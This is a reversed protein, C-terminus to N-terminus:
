LDCIGFFGDRGFNWENNLVMVVVFIIIFCNYVVVGVSDNLVVFSLLWIVFVLIYISFGMKSM